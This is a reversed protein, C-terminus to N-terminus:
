LIILTLLGFTFYVISFNQCIYVNIFDDSGNIYNVYEDGVFTEKDEKVDRYMTGQGGVIVLTSKRNIVKVNALIKYLLTHM